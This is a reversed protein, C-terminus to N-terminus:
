LAPQVVLHLNPQLGAQRPDGDRGGLSVPPRRGAGGLGKGM